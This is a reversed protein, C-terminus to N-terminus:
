EATLRWATLWEETTRKYGFDEVLRKEMDPFHGAGYFIGIKKRGGKLQQQLVKLAKINRETIITSTGDAEAFAEGENARTLQAAAIRRIRYVRDNALLSLLIDLNTALPNTKQQEMAAKGMERGLIESFSEGRRRMSSEFEEQTMDAHVFNRPTYDIDSLQFSLGLSDKMVLQLTSIAHLGVKAETWEVEDSTIRRSGKGGGPRLGQRVAAAPMVAEYLLVDYQKFVENLKEYYQKEGLHIAGILDVITDPHKESNQLRIISTELAQAVNADTRRIRVYELAEPDLATPQAQDATPASSITTAAAPPQAMTSSGTLFLVTLAVHALLTPRMATAIMNSFM